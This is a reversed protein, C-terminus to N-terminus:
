KKTNEPIQRGEHDMYYHDRYILESLPVFEYGADKLTIILTELAEPTYKAGNPADTNTCPVPPCGKGQEYVPRGDARSIKNRQVGMHM